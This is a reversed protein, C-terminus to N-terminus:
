FTQMCHTGSSCRPSLSTYLLQFCHASVSHNVCLVSLHKNSHCWSHPTYYTSRHYTYKDSESANTTIYTHKSIAAASALACLSWHTIIVRRKALYFSSIDCSLSSLPFPITQGFIFMRDNNVWGWTMGFWVWKSNDKKWPVYFFFLIKVNRETVTWLIIFSTCWESNLQSLYISLHISLYTFIRYIFCCCITILLFYFGVPKSHCSTILLDNRNRCMIQCFAKWVASMALYIIFVGCAIYHYLLPALRVACTSLPECHSASWRNTRNNTELLFRWDLTVNIKSIRFM